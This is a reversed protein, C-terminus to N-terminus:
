EVMRIKRRKILLFGQNRKNSDKIYYNARELIESLKDHKYQDLIRDINNFWKEKIDTVNFLHQCHNHKGSKYKSDGYM